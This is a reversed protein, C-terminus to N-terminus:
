NQWAPVDGCFLMPARLSCTGNLIAISFQSSMCSHNGFVQAQSCCSQFLVIFCLFFILFPSVVRFFLPCRVRFFLLGTRDSQRTRNRCDRLSQWCCVPQSCTYVGFLQFIQLCRVFKFINNRHENRRYNSIRGNCYTNDDLTHYLLIIILFMAGM